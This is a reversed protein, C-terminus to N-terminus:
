KPDTGIRTAVYSTGDDTTIEFRHSREVVHHNTVAYGDASIFFGSGQAMEVHRTRPAPGSQPGSEPAANPDIGFQRFFRDLPSGPPVGGVNGDEEVKVRVGIVAPKVRDVIDAFGTLRGATEAALARSGLPHLLAGGAVLVAVLAGAALLGIRPHRAGAGCAGGVLVREGM